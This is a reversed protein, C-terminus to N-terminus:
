RVQDREVYGVVGNCAVRYYYIPPPPGILRHTKDDLRACRASEPVDIHTAESEILSSWVHVYGNNWEKAQLAVQAALAKKTRIEASRARHAGASWVPASQKTSDPFFIVSGINIWVIAALLTAFIKAKRTNM